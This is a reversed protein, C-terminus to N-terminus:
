ATLAFWLARLIKLNARLSPGIRSADTRKRTPIRVQSIRKKAKASFVLLETGISSVQDFHGLERYVSVRYGKMGCLPDRIGWLLSAAFGFVREALRQKRDRIGVVLDSGDELQQILVRIFTPDHQGDADMTVIYECGMEDARAFGANLAEDYGRRRDRTIVIAGADRAIVATADISGDDVVIPLGYRAAEVVVSGVTAAENLAPIVIAVRHREM